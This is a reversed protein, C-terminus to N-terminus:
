SNGDKVEKKSEIFTKILGILGGLLIFYISSISIKFLSILCMSIITLIVFLINSVDKKSKNFLKIGALFIIPGVGYSIGKLAKFVIEITILYDYFLSFIYIIVFAPIVVGITAVISGILGGIKYGVFTACNIAIPGPTSESISLMNMFEVNTLTDRKETFEQEILPVMVYGGGFTTVGIKLFTFFLDLLRQLKKM